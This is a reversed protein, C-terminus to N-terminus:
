HNDEEVVKPLFQFKDEIQVIDYIQTASWSLYMQFLGWEIKVEYIQNKYLLAYSYCKQNNHGVVQLM